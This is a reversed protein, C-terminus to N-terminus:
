AKGKRLGGVTGGRAESESLSKDEIECNENHFCLCNSSKKKLLNNRVVECLDCRDM